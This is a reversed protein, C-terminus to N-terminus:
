LPRELLDVETVSGDKLSLAFSRLTYGKLSVKIEKNIAPLTLV